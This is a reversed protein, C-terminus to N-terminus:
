CRDEPATWDRPKVKIWRRTPGGESVSAEEKALYGEYGREIVQTWAELSASALRRAAHILDDGGAILDM